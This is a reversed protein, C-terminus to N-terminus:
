RYQEPKWIAASIAFLMPWRRGRRIRRKLVFLVLLPQGFTALSQSYIFGAAFIAKMRVCDAGLKEGYLPIFHSRPGARFVPPRAFEMMMQGWCFLARTHPLQRDACFPWLSVTPYYRSSWYILALHFNLICMNMNWCCTNQVTLCYSRRLRKNRVMQFPFNLEKLYLVTISTIIIKQQVM